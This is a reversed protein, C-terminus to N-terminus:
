CTLLQNTTLAALATRQKLHAAIICGSCNYFPQLVQQAQAAARQADRHLMDTKKAEVEAVQAALIRETNRRSAEVKEMREQERDLGWDRTFALFAM